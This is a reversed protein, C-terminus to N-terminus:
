KLNFESFTIKEGEYYKEAKKINVYLWDQVDKLDSNELNLNTSSVNFAFHYNLFYNGKKGSRLSGIVLKPNVSGFRKELFNDYNKDLLLVQNDKSQKDFVENVSLSKWIGICLQFNQGELTGLRDNFFYGKCNKVDGSMRIKTPYAHNIQVLQLPSKPNKNILGVNVYPSKEFPGYGKYTGEERKIVEWEGEPVPLYDGWGLGIGERTVTAGVKVDELPMPAANVATLGLALVVSALLRTLLTTKM